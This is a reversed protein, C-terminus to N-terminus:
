QLGPQWSVSAKRCEVATVLLFSVGLGPAPPLEERTNTKILQCFIYKDCETFHELTCVCMCMSVRMTPHISQAVHINDCTSLLSTPFSAKLEQLHSVLNPYGNHSLTHPNKLYNFALNDYYEYLGKISVCLCMNTNQKIFYTLCFSANLTKNM